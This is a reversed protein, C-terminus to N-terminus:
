GRTRRACRDPQPTARTPSRRRAPRSSSIRQAGRLPRGAYFVEGRVELVEPVPRDASARLRQPIATITRVNATVDEGVRGDGRTAARILRGGEYVLDLALGDVKLECLYGSQELRAEGLERVARTQWRELDETSFANDLSLLRQLHEVPAFTASPAGGVTQTPSDPTRLSPFREELAELERMSRDYAEDAVTPEDLVYYRYRAEDLQETIEAHRASSASDPEAIVATGPQPAAPDEADSKPM